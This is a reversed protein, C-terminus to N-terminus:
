PAAHLLPGAVRFALSALVVANTNATISENTSKDIEYLGEPFGQEPDGLPTVADLLTQTYETGFLADWGFAAKTSITRRSDMREGKFSLVSWAAGGGWISSYAFYPAEDLHTESVATLVGNNQFRAEQAKYIATAFKRSRSDFGFELGDFLYPESVTFAPITNRHMRTDVPVPQGEVDKIMINDSVDYADFMDFGFLMMAKAAYQEYGVRGEQDERLKGNSINGGILQGDKVMRALDWRDLIIAVKPTLAPHHREILGFTATIRAIDLASWGLGIDSPKNSYDVLAGSQVNYAKNPLIGDYLKITALTELAKSLRAEAENADIVELLQASIVAVFYSGTEWMTTSPYKNASNVLGTNADTNNEFYRWATKAHAVDTPTASRRPAIPLPEIAELTSMANQDIIQGAHAFTESKTVTKEMETDAELYTVLALGCAIATLFILHSRAHILNQRFSM